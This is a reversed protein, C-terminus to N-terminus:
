QQMRERLIEPIPVQQIPWTVPQPRLIDPYSFSGPAGPSPPCFPPSWESVEIVQGTAPDEMFCMGELPWEPLIPSPLPEPPTFPVPGGGPLPMM